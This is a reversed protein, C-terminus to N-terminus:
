RIWGSSIGVAVTLIYGSDRAIPVGWLEDDGIGWRVRSKEFIAKENTKKASGVM